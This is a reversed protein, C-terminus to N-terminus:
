QWEDQSTKKLLENRHKEMPFLRCRHTHEHTPRSGGDPVRRGSEKSWGPYLQPFWGIALSVTLLVLMIIWSVHVPIDIGAIKGLHFPSPM